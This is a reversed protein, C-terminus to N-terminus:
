TWEATLFTRVSQIEAYTLRRGWSGAHRLYFGGFSLRGSPSWYAGICTRTQGYPAATIPNSVEHDSVIIRERHGDNIFAVLTWTDDPYAPGTPEGITHSGGAGIAAANITPSSTSIIHRGYYSGADDTQAFITGDTSADMKVWMLITSAGDGDAVVASALDMAENNAKDFQVAAFGDGHDAQWAPRNGNVGGGTSGTFVKGNGSVDLLTAVDSGNLTKQDARAEWTCGTIDDLATLTAPTPPTFGILDNVVTAAEEAAAQNGVTSLHTGDGQYGSSVTTTFESRAAMNVIADAGAANGTILTNLALRETDQGGSHLANPILTCVVAAFGATQRAQVWTTIRAYVTAASDGNDIDNTGGWLVAISGDADFHADVDTAGDANMQTVTEGATGSNVFYCAGGAIQASALTPWRYGVAVGQGATLSDGDFVVVGDSFPIAYGTLTIGTTGTGILNGNLDQLTRGSGIVLDIDDGDAVDGSLDITVTTTGNGATVASLTRPTGTNFTLSLGTLNPLYVAESFVLVLDDPTGGDVTASVLTPASAERTGLNHGSSICTGNTWQAVILFDSAAVFTDWGATNLDPAAVISGAEGAPIFIAIAAGEVHGGASDIALICAESGNGSFVMRKHDDFRLLSTFTTTKGGTLAGGSPGALTLGGIDLDADLNELAALLAVESAPLISFASGM